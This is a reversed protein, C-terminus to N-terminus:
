ARCRTAPWARGSRPRHPTTVRSGNTSATRATPITPTTTPCQSTVETTAVPSPNTTSLGNRQIGHSAGNVHNNWVNPSSNKAPPNAAARDRRDRRRRSTTGTPTSVPVHANTSSPMAARPTGCCVTSVTPYRTTVGSHNRATYTTNESTM